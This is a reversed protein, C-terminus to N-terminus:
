NFEVEQVFGGHWSHYWAQGTNGNISLMGAIKGNVTFDFTYYGYFETSMETKANNSNQNLYTQAYREAQSQSVTMTSALENETGMMGGGVYSYKTNWMMNPGPEPAITGIAAGGGMMGGGMMDGGKWNSPPTGKWIVMEFAGRGTDKEYYIIYFNYEFEMIEKIALSPNQTSTLYQEAIAKAQDMTVASSPSQPQQTSQSWQGIMGQNGNESNWYTPANSTAVYTSYSAGAFYALSGLGIVLLLIALTNTRIKMKAHVQQPIFPQTLMLPIDVKFCLTNCQQVFESLLIFRV